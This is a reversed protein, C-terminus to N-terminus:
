SFPVHGTWKLLVYLKASIVLFEINFSHRSMIHETADGGFIFIFFFLEVISSMIASAYV